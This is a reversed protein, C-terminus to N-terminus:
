QSNMELEVWVSEHTRNGAWVDGILACRKPQEQDHSMVHGVKPWQEGPTLPRKIEIGTCCQGPRGTRTLLSLENGYIHLESLMFHSITTPHLYTDNRIGM